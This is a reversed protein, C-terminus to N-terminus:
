DKKNIIEMAKDITYSNYIYSVEDYHLSKKAIKITPENISDSKYLQMVEDEDCYYGLHCYGKKEYEKKISDIKEQSLFAFDVKYSDLINSLRDVIELIVGEKNVNENILCTCQYENMKFHSLYEAPSGEYKYPYDNHAYFLQPLVTLGEISSRNEVNDFNSNSNYTGSELYKNIDMCALAFYYISKNEDDGGHIKFRFEPHSESYVHYSESDGYILDFSSYYDSVYFKENYMEKLLKVVKYDNRVRFYSDKNDSNLSCSCLMFSLIIICFILVIRFFNKRLEMM